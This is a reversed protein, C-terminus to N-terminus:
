KQAEEGQQKKILTAIRNIEEFAATLSSPDPAPGEPSGYVKNELDTLIKDIQNFNEFINNDKKM